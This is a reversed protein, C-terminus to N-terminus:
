SNTYRSSVKFYLNVSAKVIVLKEKSTDGM